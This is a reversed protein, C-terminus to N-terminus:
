QCTVKIREGNVWRPKLTGADAAPPYVGRRKAGSDYYSVVVRVETENNSWVQGTQDWSEVTRVKQDGSTYQMNTVYEFPLCQYDLSKSRYSARHSLFCEDSTASCAEEKPSGFEDWGNNDDDNWEYPGYKLVTDRYAVINLIDICCASNREEELTVVIRNGDEVSVQICDNEKFCDSAAEATPATSSAILMVAFLALVLMPFRIIKKLKLESM